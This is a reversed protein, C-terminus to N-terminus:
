RSFRVTVGNVVVSNGIGRRAGRRLQKAQVAGCVLDILGGVTAGPTVNFLRLVDAAYPAINCATQIGAIATCVTTGYTCNTTPTPRPVPSEVTGACGSIGLSGILAAAIILNRM